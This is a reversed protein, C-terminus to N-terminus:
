LHLPMIWTLNQGFLKLGTETPPPYASIAVVSTTGVEYGTGVEIERGDNAQSCDYFDNPLYLSKSLPVIGKELFFASHWKLYHVLM